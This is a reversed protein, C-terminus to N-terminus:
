WPQRPMEARERLWDIIDTGMVCTDMGHSLSRPIDGGEIADLIELVNIGLGDQLTVVNYVKAARLRREALRFFREADAPNMRRIEYVRGNDM